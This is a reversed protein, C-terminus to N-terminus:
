LRADATWHGQVTYASFASATGTINLSAGFGNQGAATSPTCNAYATGNYWAWLGMSQTPSNPTPYFTMTPPARMTVPFSIDGSRIQSSNVYCALHTSTGNGAVGIAPATLQDFSKCFFRQSLSLELGIPRPEFPTAVNGAEFQVQAVDFTASTSYVGVAGLSDGFIVNDQKYSVLWLEVYNNLNTGFTKGSISPLTGTLVIKQFATTLNIVQQAAIVTTSPSGGTGFVQRVIIAATRTSEARIWASLTFAGGSLTQVGEIPQRMAMFSGTGGQTGVATAQLRGYYTPNNPVVTQGNAFALQLLTIGITGTGSSGAYCQHFWMDASGYGLANGTGTLIGVTGEQWLDFNGNILKNKLGGVTVNDVYQKTAAALATTPDAPLTLDGSALERWSSTTADLVLPKPM